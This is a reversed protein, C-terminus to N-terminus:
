GCIPCNTAKSEDNVHMIAIASKGDLPGEFLVADYIANPALGDLSRILRVRCEACVEIDALSNVVGLNSELTCMGLRLWPLVLFKTSPTPVASFLRLM